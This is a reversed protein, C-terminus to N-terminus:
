LLCAALCLTGAAQRMCRAPPLQQLLNVRRADVLCCKLWRPRPPQQLSSCRLRKGNHVVTPTGRQTKSLVIDIFDKATPVAQISKFNHQVQPAHFSLCHLLTFGHAFPSPEM